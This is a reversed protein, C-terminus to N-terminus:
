KTWNRRKSKPTPELDDPMVIFGKPNQESFQRSFYGDAGGKLNDDSDRTVDTVPIGNRESVAKLSEYLIEM